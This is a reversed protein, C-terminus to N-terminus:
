TIGLYPYCAAATPDGTREGRVFREFRDHIIRCGTQYIEAVARLAADPDTFSRLDRVRAHGGDAM